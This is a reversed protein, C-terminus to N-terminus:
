KNLAIVENGLTSITRRQEDLWLLDLKSLREDIGAVEDTIEM